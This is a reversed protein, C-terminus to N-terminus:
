KFDHGAKIFSKFVNMSLENQLSREPHWQIGILFNYDEKTLAEILNDESYAIASLGKGLAKIAQHHSSNVSFMGNGLFKNETIVITHYGNKHNIAVSVQADIDQYLMGGFFVNILQMGYCIGLVPKHLNTAERLLSIEFDSRKRSGLRVQPLMEEGYYSPDIDAGGPIILGNIIEAYAATDDVPPLLLPVGGAKQVAECYDRNLRLHEGDIDTTIGIIPKNM